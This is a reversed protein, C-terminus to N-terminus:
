GNTGLPLTLRLVAGRPQGNAASLGGGMRSALSESLSLGLGLGGERQSFFPEFMRSLAEPSLGPGTDAVTLTGMSGAQEITLTLAREGGPTQDLAQLANMLLNHVIQELAVPDAAVKVNQDAHLAPTVGRSRCEPELLYLARRVADAFDVSQTQGAQDPQELMRRLRTIVGSARRAQAVAQKMAERATALEPTDEDLLRSAAQTNALVATLPQNLEHAMGAALEGLTNLRNVQGLRLLEEARQRGVRQRRLHHMTALVFGCVLAWVAMQVWPWFGIGLTRSVKLDFPQSPTALQKNADFRWRASGSQGPQLVFTQGDIALEVRVPSTDAQAPWESWPVMARLDIDLVYSDPLAALVLQYRGGALNVVGLAPRRQQRSTTEAARLGATSGAADTERRQVSLIQPYLAPLRQEPGTKANGDRAPQLLALTALIADLQVVRQSLLRHMIRADTDFVERQRLWENRALM